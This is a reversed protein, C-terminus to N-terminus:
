RSQRNPILTGGRNDQACEQSKRHPPQQKKKERDQIFVLTILFVSASRVSVLLNVQSPTSSQMNQLKRSGSLPPNRWLAMIDMFDKPMDQVVRVKEYKVEPDRSPVLSFDGDVTTGSPAELAL